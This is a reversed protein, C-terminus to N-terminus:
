IGKHLELYHVGGLLKKYFDYKLFGMISNCIRYTKLM